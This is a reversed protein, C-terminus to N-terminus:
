AHRSGHKEIVSDIRTREVPDRTKQRWAALKGLDEPAVTQAQALRDVEKREEQALM